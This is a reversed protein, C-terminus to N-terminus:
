IRSALANGDSVQVVTYGTDELAGALIARIQPEDEALLIHGSAPPLPTNQTTTGSPSTDGAHHQSAVGHFTTGTNPISKVDIHGSHDNIIRVCWRYAWAPAAKSAEPPTFPNSSATSFM